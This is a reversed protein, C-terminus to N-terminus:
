GSLAPRSPLAREATLVLGAVTAPATGMLWGTETLRLGLRYHLLAADAVPAPLLRHLADAGCLTCPPACRDTVAERMLKWAPLGPEAHRSLLPWCESLTHLVSDVVVLPAGTCGMRAQAYRLFFTRRAEAFASAAIRGPRTRPDNM